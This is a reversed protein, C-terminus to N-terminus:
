ASRYLPVLRLDVSTAATAGLVTLTVTQEGPPLPWLDFPPQLRNWLNAGDGGRVQLGTTMAVWPSTDVVISGGASVTGTLTFQRGSEVHRITAGTAPGRITWRPWSAVDGLVNITTPGGLIRDTVVRVPLIPLFNGAATDNGWSATVTEGHWWPDDCTLTLGFSQRGSPAFFQGRSWARSPGSAHGEVWRTRGDPRRVTLRVPDLTFPSVLRDFADRENLLETLSGAEVTLPLFVERPPVDLDRSLGGWMGASREVEVAVAPMDLGDVGPGLLWRSTSTRICPLRLSEGGRSLTFEFQELPRDLSYGPQPEIPPEPPPAGQGFTAVLPM